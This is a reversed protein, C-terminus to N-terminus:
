EKENKEKDILRQMNHKVIIKIGYKDRLIDTFEVIKSYTPEVLDHGKSDAGINLFEPKMEGIWRSFEDIDFELIPEVTLFTRFGRCRVSKMAECRERAPPAKSVDSMDRNTEITSGLISSKPIMFLFDYFRAPNKTQFVYTNEPFKVCHELIRVIFESPVNKAFLDNCHEIFITKGKGYNSAFEKEILRIEGHYREVFIKSRKNSEVYCYKCEHGCKGGLLSHTHTIWEQYMNSGAKVKKLSM